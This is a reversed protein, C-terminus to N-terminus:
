HISKSHGCALCQGSGRTYGGVATYGNCRCISSGGYYTDKHRCPHTYDTEVSPVSSGGFSVNQQPYFQQQYPQQSSYRAERRSQKCSDVWFGLGICVALVVGGTVWSGKDQDAMGKRGGEQRDDNLM